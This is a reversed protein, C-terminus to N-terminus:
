PKAVGEGARAARARLQAMRALKAAVLLWPAGHMVLDLIDIPRTLTGASLLRLKELVHPEPAFPALGLVFAVLLLGTLPLKDLFRVTDSTIRSASPPTLKPAIHRSM